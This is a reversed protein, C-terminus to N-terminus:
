RVVGNQPRGRRQYLRTPRYGVTELKAPHKMAGQRAAKTRQAGLCVAEVTCGGQTPNQAHLPTPPSQPTLPVGPHYALAGTEDNRYRADFVSLDIEHDVLWNLACEFTGPLIQESFRVPLLKSLHPDVPKHRAM